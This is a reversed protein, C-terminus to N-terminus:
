DRPPLPYIRVCIMLWLVGLLWGALIDTPWHM